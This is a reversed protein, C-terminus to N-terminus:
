RGWVALVPTTGISEGDMPRVCLVKQYTRGGSAFLENGGDEDMGIVAGTSDLVWLNVIVGYTPEPAPITLRYNICQTGNRESQQIIETVLDTRGIDGGPTSEVTWAISTIAGGPPAGAISIELPMRGEPTLGTAYEANQTSWYLEDSSLVRSSNDAFTLTAGFNSIQQNLGSTNVVELLVTLHPENAIVEDIVTAGRFQWGEASTMAIAPAKLTATPPIATAAGFPTPTPPLATADPATTATPQSFVTPPVVQTAVAVPEPPLPTAEPGEPVATETASVPAESVVDAILASPSMTPQLVAGAEQPTPMPTSTELVVAPGAIINSMLTDRYVILGFLALACLPALMALAGGAVIWPNLRASRRSPRRKIPTPLSHTTTSVPSVDFGIM